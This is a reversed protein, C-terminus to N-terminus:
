EKEVMQQIEELTLTGKMLILTFECDKEDHVLVYENPKDKHSKHLIITHSDDEKMRMLEEYGDQTSFIEAEKKLIAIVEPKECTIIHLSELKPLVSKQDIGDSQIGMGAILKFMAKSIHASTVGEMETIKDFDFTKALMATPLSLMLLTILAIINRKM